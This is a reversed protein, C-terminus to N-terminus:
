RPRYQSEPARIGAGGARRAALAGAAGLHLPLGMHRRLALVRLVSWLTGRDQSSSGGSAVAAEVCHFATLVVSPTILWGTGVQHDSTIRSTAQKVAEDAM